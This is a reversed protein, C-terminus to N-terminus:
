GFVLVPEIFTNIADERLMAIAEKGESVIESGDTNDPYRRLKNGLIIDLIGNFYAIFANREKQTLYNIKFFEEKIQYYVLCNENEHGAFNYVNVVENVKDYEYDIVWQTINKIDEELYISRIVTEFESSTYISEFDSTSYNYGSYSSPVIKMIDDGDDPLPFSAILPTAFFKGIYKFERVFRIAMKWATDFEKDGLPITVLEGGRLIIYEDIYNQKTAM